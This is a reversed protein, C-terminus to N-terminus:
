VFNRFKENTIDPIHLPNYSTAQFIGIVIVDAWDVRYFHKNKTCLLNEQNSAAVCTHVCETLYKSSDLSSYRM